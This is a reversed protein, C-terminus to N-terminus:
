LDDQIKKEQVQTIVKKFIKSEYKIEFMTPGWQGTRPNKIRGLYLLVTTNPTEWKTTYTLFGRVVALGKRYFFGDKRGAKWTVKDEYPIGYKKILEERFLGFDRVYDDVDVYNTILFTYEAAILRSEAFLYSASAQMSALIVAYTLKDKKNLTLRVTETKKVQEIDMGWKTKRFHFEDAEKNGKVYKWTGDDNLLVKQGNETIAIQNAFVPISTVVILLLVSIFCKVKKM